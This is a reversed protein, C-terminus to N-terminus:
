QELGKTKDLSSAIGPVALKRYELLVESMIKEEQLHLDNWERYASTKLQNISTKRKGAILTDHIINDFDISPLKLETSIADLENLATIWSAVSHEQSLIQAFESNSSRRIARKFTSVIRAEASPYRNSVGQIINSKHFLLCVGGIATIIIKFLGNLNRQSAYPIKDFNEKRLWIDIILDTASSDAQFELVQVFKNTITTSLIGMGDRLIGMSNAGGNLSLQSNLYHLHGMLYHSEEHLIIWGYAIDRLMGALKLRDLDLPVRYNLSESRENDNMEKLFGYDLYRTEFEHSINAIPGGEWTDQFFDNYSCMTCFIDDLALYVGLSITFEVPSENDQLSASASLSLNNKDLTYKFDRGGVHSEWGKIKFLEKKWTALFNERETTNVQILEEFSLPDIFISKERWYIKGKIYDKVSQTGCYSKKSM